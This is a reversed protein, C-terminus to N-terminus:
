CLHEGVKCGVELIRQHIQIQLPRYHLLNTRYKLGREDLVRQFRQQALPHLGRLVRVLRGDGALSEFTIITETGMTHVLTWLIEIVGLNLLILVGAATLTAIMAVTATTTAAATTTTITTTATSAGSASVSTAPKSRRDLVLRHTKDVALGVGRPLAASVMANIRMCSAGM